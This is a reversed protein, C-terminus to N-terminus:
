KQKQKRKAVYESPTVGMHKKFSATFWSPSNFGTMDSVQAISWRGGELLECAKEFRLVHILNLASQGTLDKIRNHLTMRSMNMMSALDSVGFETKDLNENILNIVQSIFNKGAEDARSKDCIFLMAKIDEMEKEHEQEMKHIRSESKQKQKRFASTIGAALAASLLLGWVIEAATSMFWVPKIRIHLERPTTCWVGDNNASKLIFTYKGKGLNSYSAENKNSIHWDEDIGELKWAFTNHKDAAYNLTAFKLTFSKCHHDLTISETASIAKQLIRSEDGTIIKRDFVRLETIIPTPSYVNQPMTEPRFYAIGNITGVYLQGNDGKCIAGPMMQRSPLGDKETYARVDSGTSPFVCLGKDTALWLRSYNDQEIARIANDPLGNATTYLNLSNDKRDYCYLGDLAGIWIRHDRSEFLTSIQYISKLREDTIDTTRLNNKDIQLVMLGEKSGLWLAGSNDKLLTLIHVAPSNPLEIKRIRGNNKNYLFLGGLAGLWLEGDDADVIAYINSIQGTHSMKKDQKDIIILGSGHSGCYIHRGDPDIHIVKIDNSNNKTLPAPIYTESTNNNGEPSYHNIGGHNTGIWLSGDSDESICNIINDNLPIGSPMRMITGFRRHLPHYYNAGGWYTGIWMGGQRDRFISKISGHSPSDAKFYDNEIIQIRETQRNLICLDNITGIWLNGDMDYQLARVFDSSLGNQRRLQSYEGTQPALHLIGGGETAIWLEGNRDALIDNADAVIRYTRTIILSDEAYRCKCLTSRKTGIYIDGNECSVSVSGILEDPIGGNLYRGNASDLIMSGRSSAIFMRGGAIEAIDSATVNHHLSDERTPLPYRTFHETDPDFRSVGRASCVWIAGNTDVYLKNAINDLLTNSDDPFSAYCTIDYGDFRAVGNMSGFWIYGQRDQTISLITNQPLGQSVDIHSFSVSPMLSILFAFLIM